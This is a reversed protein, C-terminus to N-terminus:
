LSLFWKKAQKMDNLKFYCNGINMTEITFNQLPTSKKLLEYAKQSNPLALNYKHQALYIASLNNYSLGLRYENGMEEFMDIAISIHKEAEKYDHIFYYYGNWQYHCNALYTKDELKLLM